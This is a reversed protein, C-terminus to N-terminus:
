VPRRCRARQRETRDGGPGRTRRAPRSAERREIEGVRGNHDCPFERTRGPGGSRPVGPHPHDQRAARRSSRLRLMRCHRRCARRVPGRLFLGSSRRSSSRRPQAGRRFGEDRRGVPRSQRYRATDRRTTSIRPSQGGVQKAAPKRAATKKAAIKKAAVKKAAAKKPARKVTRKRATKKAAAKKAVGKRVGKQACQRRRAKRQRREKGGPRSATKEESPPAIRKVGSVNLDSLGPFDAQCFSVPSIARAVVCPKRWGRWRPISADPSREIPQLHALVKLAEPLAGAAPM